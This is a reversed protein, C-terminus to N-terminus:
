SLASLSSVSGGPRLRKTTRRAPQSRPICCRKPVQRAPYRTSSDIPIIAQTDSL